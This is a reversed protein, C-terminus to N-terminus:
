TRPQAARDRDVDDHVYVGARDDVTDTTSIAVFGRTEDVAFHETVPVVAATDMDCAAISAVRMEDPFHLDVSAHRSHALSQDPAEPLDQQLSLDLWFTPCAAHHKPGIRPYGQM